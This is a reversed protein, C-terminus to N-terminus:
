DEDALLGKLDTFIKRVDPLSAEFGSRDHEAMYFLDNIRAKCSRIWGRVRKARKEVKPKGKTAKFGQLGAYAAGLGITGDWIGQILEKGKGDREDWLAAACILDRNSIRHLAAMERISKPMSAVAKADAADFAVGQSPTRRIEGTVRRANASRIERSIRDRVGERDHRAAFWEQHYAVVALARKGATMTQRAFNESLMAEVPEGKWVVADLVKLGAESAAAVRHRGVIVRNEEDIVIPQIQGDETFSRVMDDFEANFASLMPLRQALPHITLDAIKVVKMNM